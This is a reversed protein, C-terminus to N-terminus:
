QLAHGYMHKYKGLDSITCCQAGEPNLDTRRRCSRVESSVCDEESSRLQEKSLRGCDLDSHDWIRQRKEGGSCGSADFSGRWQVLDDEVTTTDSGSNLQHDLVEPVNRDAPVVVGTSYSQFHMALSCEEEEEEENEGEIHKCRM